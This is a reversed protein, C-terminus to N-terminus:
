SLDRKLRDFEEASIEGSAYRRRAIDLASERRGSDRRGYIAVAWAAIALVGLWFAAMVVFMVWWSGDGWDMHGDRYALTALRPASQALLLPVAM